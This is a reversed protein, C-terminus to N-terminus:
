GPICTVLTVGMHVKKLESLMSRHNKSTDLRQSLSIKMIIEPYKILYYKEIETRYNIVFQKTPYTSIREMTPILMDKDETVRKPKLEKSTKESYVVAGIFEDDFNDWMFKKM